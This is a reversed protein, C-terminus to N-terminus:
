TFMFLCTETIKIGLITGRCRKIHLEVFGKYLFQLPITFIYKQFYCFYLSLKLVFFEVKKKIFSCDFDLNKTPSATETFIRLTFIYVTRSQCRATYKSIGIYRFFKVLNTPLRLDTVPVRSRQCIPFHLFHVQLFVQIFDRKGTFILFRDLGLVSGLVLHGCWLAPWSM